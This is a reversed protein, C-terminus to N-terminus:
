RKLHAWRIKIENMYQWSSTRLLCSFVENIDITEYAGDLVWWFYANWKLYKTDLIEVSEELTLIM